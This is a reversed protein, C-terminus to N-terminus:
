RNASDWARMTTLPRFVSLARSAFRRAMSADFTARRPPATMPTMAPMAKPWGCRMAARAVIVASRPRLVPNRDVRDPMNWVARVQQNELRFDAPAHVPQENIPEHCDGRDVPRLGYGGDKSLRAAIDTGPCHHAKFEIAQFAAGPQRARSQLLRRFMVGPPAGRQSARVGCDARRQRYLVRSKLLTFGIECSPIGSASGGGTKRLTCYRMECRSM